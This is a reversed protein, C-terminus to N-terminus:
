GRIARIERINEIGNLAYGIRSIRAIRPKYFSPMDTQEPVSKSKGSKTM